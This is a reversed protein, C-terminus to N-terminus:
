MIYYLRVPKLIIESENGSAQNTSSGDFNWSPIDSVILEVNKKIIRIKSRLENKGGIWIYEVIWYTM